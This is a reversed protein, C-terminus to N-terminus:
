LYLSSFYIKGVHGVARVIYKQGLIKCFIAKAELAIADAIETPAAPIGDAPNM